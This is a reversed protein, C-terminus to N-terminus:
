ISSGAGPSTVQTGRLVLVSSGNDIIPYFPYNLEDWSLHGFATPHTAGEFCQKDATISVPGEASVQLWTFHNGSLTVLAVQELCILYM